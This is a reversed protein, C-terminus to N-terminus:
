QVNTTSVAPILVIEVLCIEFTLWSLNTAFTWNANSSWFLIAPVFPSLRLGISTSIGTPSKSVQHIFIATFCTSRNLGRDSTGGCDALLKLIKISGSTCAGWWCAYRCNNASRSFHSSYILFSMAFLHTVSDFLRKATGIM